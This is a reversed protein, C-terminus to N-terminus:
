VVCPRFLGCERMKADTNVQSLRIIAGCRPVAMVSDWIRPQSSASAQM